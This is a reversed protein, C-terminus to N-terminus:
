NCTRMDETRIATKIDEPTSPYFSHAWPKSVRGKGNQFFFFDVHCKMWLCTRVNLHVNATTIIIKKIYNNADYAHM